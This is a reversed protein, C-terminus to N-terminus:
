TKGRPDKLLGPQVRGGEGFVNLVESCFAPIEAADARVAYEADGRELALDQAIGEPMAHQASPGKRLFETWSSRGAAIITEAAQTNAEVGACKGPVALAYYATFVPRLSNNATPDENPRLGIGAIADSKTCRALTEPPDHRALSTIEIAGEDLLKVKTRWGSRNGPSRLNLIYGDKLKQHSVITAGCMSGGCFEYSTASFSTFNDSKRHYSQCRAPSNGYSGILERPGNPYVKADGAEAAIQGAFVSLAAITLMRKMTVDGM